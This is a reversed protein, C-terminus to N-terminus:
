EAAILGLKSRVIGHAIALWWGKSGDAVLGDALTLEL